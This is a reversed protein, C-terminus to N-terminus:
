RIKLRSRTIRGGYPLPKYKNLIAEMEQISENYKKEKVLSFSMENRIELITTIGKLQFVLDRYAININKITM